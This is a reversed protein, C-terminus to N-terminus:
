CAGPTGPPAWPKCRPTVKAPLKKIFKAGKILYDSWKFSKGTFGKFKQKGALVRRICAFFRAKRVQPSLRVTKYRARQNRPCSGWGGACIVPLRETKPPRCYAGVQLVAPMYIMQSWRKKQVPTMGKKATTVTRKVQKACQSKIRTGPKEACLRKRGVGVDTAKVQNTRGGSIM